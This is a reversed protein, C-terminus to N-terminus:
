IVKKLFPQARPTLRGKRKIQVCGNSASARLPRNRRGLFLPPCCGIIRCGAMVRWQDPSMHCVQRIADAMSTPSEPDVLIGGSSALLEPAAGARTAIVPTRCAMAELIRFASAKRMFSGFLWVDCQAYLTRLDCQPPMLHFEGNSPWAFEPGPACTGFSVIRHPGISKGAIELAKLIDYPLGQLSTPLLRLWVDQNASSFAPPRLIPHLRSRKFVYDDLKAQPSVRKLATPWGNNLRCIKQVPHDGSGSLATSARPSLM